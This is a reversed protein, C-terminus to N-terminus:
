SLLGSTHVPLCTCMGLAATRTHRRFFNSILARNVWCLRRTQRTSGCSAEDEIGLVAQFSLSPCRARPNHPSLPMQAGEEATVAEPASVKVLGRATLYGYRSGLAVFMLGFFEGADQWSVNHAEGLIERTLFPALWILLVAPTLARYPLWAALGVALMVSGTRLWRDDQAEVPLAVLTLAVLLLLALLSYLGSAKSLDSSYAVARPKVEAAM